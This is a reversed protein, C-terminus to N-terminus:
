KEGISEASFLLPVIVVGNGARNKVYESMQKTIRVTEAPDIKDEFVLAAYLVVPKNLASGWEILAPILKEISSLAPKWVRSRTLKVEIVHIGADTQSVADYVRRSKGIKVMQNPIFNLGTEREFLSILNSEIRNYREVWNKRALETEVATKVESDKIFDLRLASQEGQEEEEKEEKVKEEVQSQTAPQMFVKMEEPSRFDSPAYLNKPYKRVLLHFGWFVVFPFLTLFGVFAWRQEPLLATGQVLVLGAIGYSFVLFLSIVGLPTRSLKVASTGFEKLDM